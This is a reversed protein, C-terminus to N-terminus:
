ASAGAPTGNGRRGDVFLPRSVVSWPRTWHRGVVEAVEVANAGLGLGWAEEKRETSETGETTEGEKDRPM